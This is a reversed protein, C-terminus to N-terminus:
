ALVTKKKKGKKLFHKARSTLDKYSIESNKLSKLKAKAKKVKRKHIKKLEKKPRGM